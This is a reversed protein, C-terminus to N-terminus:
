ILLINNWTKGVLTVRCYTNQLSLCGSPFWNEDESNRKIRLDGQHFALTIKDPVSVKLNGALEQWVFQVLVNRQRWVLKEM